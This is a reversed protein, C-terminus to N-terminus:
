ELMCVVDPSASVPNFLGTGAASVFLRSRGVARAARAFLISCVVETQLDSHDLIEGLNGSWSGAMRRPRLDPRYSTNFYEEVSVLASDPM